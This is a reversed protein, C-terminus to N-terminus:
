SESDGDGIPLGLERVLKELHRMRTQLTVIKRDKCASEVQLQEVQKKLEVNEHQLTDIMQDRESLTKRLTSILLEQEEQRVELQCARNTLNALRTEYGESLTMISKARTLTRNAIAAVVASGIGGGGLAAIIAVIITVAQESM